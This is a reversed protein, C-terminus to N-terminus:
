SWLNSVSSWLDGHLTKDPSQTAINEGTQATALGLLYQMQAADYQTGLQANLRATVNAMDLVGLETQQNAVLRQLEQAAFQAELGGLGQTAALRRNESESFADTYAKTIDQGLKLQVNGAARNAASSRLGKGAFQTQVAGIGESAAQKALNVEAQIKEKNAETDLFTQYAQVAKSTNYTDLGAISLAEPDEPGIYKAQQASGQGATKLLQQYFARQEPSQTSTWDVNWDGGGYPTTMATTIANIIAGQPTNSGGGQYGRVKQGQLDDAM